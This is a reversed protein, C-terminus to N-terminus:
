DSQNDEVNRCKTRSFYLRRIVQSIILKKENINSNKSKFLANSDMIPSIRGMLTCLFTLSSSCDEIGFYELFQEVIM